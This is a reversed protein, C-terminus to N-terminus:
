SGGYSGEARGGRAWGLGKLEAKPELMLKGKGNSGRWQRLAEESYLSFVPEM